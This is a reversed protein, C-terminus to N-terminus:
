DVRRARVTAGLAHVELSTVRGQGDRAFMVDIDGELVFFSREDSPYLTLPTPGLDPTQLFLQQGQRSIVIPAGEVEYRGAYQVANAEDLPVVTKETPQYDPWGYERAISRLIETLLADGGDGNAMVIAARGAHAYAYLMARFGNNAGGHSFVASTGEGWASFGLAESRPSGTLM